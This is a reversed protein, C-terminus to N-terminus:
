EIESDDPLTDHRSNIFDQLEQSSRQRNWTALGLIDSITVAEVNSSHQEIEM